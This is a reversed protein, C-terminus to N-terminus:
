ATVLQGQWTVEIIRRSALSWIAARLAEETIHPNEDMIRTFLVEPNAEGGEKKLAEVLETEAPSLSEKAFSM